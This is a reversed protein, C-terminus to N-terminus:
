EWRYIYRVGWTRPMGYLEYVGFTGDNRVTTRYEEDALNEVFALVQWRESVPGIGGRLNFLGYGDEQFRPEEIPDTIVSLDMESQDRGHNRLGTKTLEQGYQLEKDRHKTRQHYM